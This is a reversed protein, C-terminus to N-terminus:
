DQVYAVKLVISQNNAVQAGAVTSRLTADDTTSAFGNAVSNSDDTAEYGGGATSLAVATGDATAANSLTLTRSARDVATIVTGAPIGTGTIKFGVQFSGQSVLAQVIASGNTTNGTGANALQSVAPIAAGTTTVATAALHRAPVVNDGLNLTCSATGTDWSLQSLHPVLRAGIPLKGWYIIDGIAPATGTAPAKYHFEAFRLRGGLKNAKTRTALPQGFQPGNVVTQNDSYFNAM